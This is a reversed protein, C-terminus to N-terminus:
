RRVDFVRHLDGTPRLLLAIEAGKCRWLRLRIGARDIRAHSVEAVPHIHVSTIMHLLRNRTFSYQMLDIITCRMQSIDIKRGHLGTKLLGPALCVISSVTAQSVPCLSSVTFRYSIIIPSHVAACFVSSWALFPSVFFIWQQSLRLFTQM